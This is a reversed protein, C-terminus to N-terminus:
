WISNPSDELDELERVFDCLHEEMFALNISGYTFIDIWCDIDPKHERIYDCPFPTTHAFKVSNWCKHDRIFEIPVNHNYILSSYVVKHIFERILDFSIWTSLNDWNFKDANGRIFAPTLNCNSSLTNWDVRDINNQIIEMTAHLSLHKWSTVNDLNPHYSLQDHDLKDYYKEIFAHSLHANKSIDCWITVDTITDYNHLQEVCKCCNYVFDMSLKDSHTKIFEHTLRWNQSAFDWTVTDIYKELVDITVYDSLVYGLEWKIEPHRMILTSLRNMYTEAREPTYAIKHWTTCTACIAKYDCGQTINTPSLIVVAVEAIQHWM